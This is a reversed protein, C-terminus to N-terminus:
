VKNVGARGFLGHPRLVLLGIVLGFTLIYTYSSGFLAIVMAEIVGFILGAAVVGWPNDMGGLIAVAFAKVGFLFGMTSSVTYLPAILIGAVGALLASLGYSFVIVAPVSIGMLQAARANQVVALMAKGYGTYKSAAWFALAIGIGVAPIVLQLPMVGAGFIMLPAEALASPMGRPEKGFTFLVINDVLIGAAVTAMLWADSNRQRFPRVAVREVLLGYLVCLVLSAPVALLIPWGFTVALSYCFVAGLMMSTGLAFNVTRSVAWTVHYGLALLGYMSGIALGSILSSFLLM